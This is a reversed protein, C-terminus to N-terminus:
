RKMLRIYVLAVPTLALFLLKELPKWADTGLFRMRLGRATGGGAHWAELVRMRRGFKPPLAERTSAWRLYAHTAADPAFDDNGVLRGALAVIARLRIPDRRENDLIKALENREDPTLEELSRACVAVDRLRGLAVGHIAHHLVTAFRDLVRVSGAEGVISVFHSALADWDSPTSLWKTRELRLHVEVAWGSGPPFLPPLHHSGKVYWRRERASARFTYGSRVLADVAREVASPPVIIDIDHSVYISADADRAYSRAAGKLLAFPVGGDNLLRVISVVQTRYAIARIAGSRAIPQLYARLARARGTGVTGLARQLLIRCGHRRAFWVLRRPDVREIARAIRDPESRVDGALVELLADFLAERRWPLIGEARDRAIRIRAALARAPQLRAYRRGRRFFREDDIRPAQADDSAYLAGLRGVVNVRPVWEPSAPRADGCTRVREGTPRAVIRHAVLRDHEIFVVIDGIRAEASDFRALELLMGDRLLPEMSTGRMTVRPRAGATALAELM